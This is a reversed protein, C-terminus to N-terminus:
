ASLKISLRRKEGTHLDNVWSHSRVTAIVRAVHHSAEAGRLWQLGITRTREFDRVPVGVVGPMHFLAPMLAIGLGSAVLGLARDDQDTRFVVKTRISRAIMLDTTDKFTECGTRLIFRQNHLDELKVSKRQAFPHATPVMLVYPETFLPLSKTGETQGLSTISLHLKSQSLLEQLKEKPGEILEVSMGESAQCFVATLAAIHITPLTRLTGIRVTEEAKGNSLGKLESKINTCASLIERASDLLKQGAPTLTVHGQGRNLLQQGLEEELKSIAASISPQSVAARIAGKTFSGTDAVAVFHRIQYLEM